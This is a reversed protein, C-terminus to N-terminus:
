FFISYNTWPLISKLLGKLSQVHTNV